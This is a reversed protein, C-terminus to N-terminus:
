NLTIAHEMDNPIIAIIFAYVFTALAALASPLGLHLAVRFLTLIMVILRLLINVFTMMIEKGM